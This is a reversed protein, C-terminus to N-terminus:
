FTTTSSTSSTAADTLSLAADTGASASASLASAADTFTTAADTLSSAAYTFNIGGVSYTGTKSGDSPLFAAFLDYTGSANTQGTVYLNGSTDVAIAYGQDIGAPSSINRQWQITGSTNYKAIQIDDNSTGIIYVNGSADVAIGNGVDANASFLRRQWQITGSSNYKALQIDSDALHSRSTGVVYVNGSSDVAIGNGIEGTAADGLVRQWTIVGATTLKMIQIDGNAGSANNYGTVYVNGSSDCAAANAQTAAGGGYTQQFQLTPTSNYKYVLLSRVGPANTYGVCFINGSADVAGGYGASNVGAFLLRRQFQLAGASNYKAVAPVQVTPSAQGFVYFNSSSDLAVAYCIDTSAGTLSRQWQIAGLLNYKAFQMNENPSSGVYGGVFLNGATDAAVGLGGEPSGSALTIMFNPPASVTLSISRGNIVFGGAGVSAPSYTVTGALQSVSGNTTSVTYTTFSDFNTITFTGSSGVYYTTQNELLDVPADIPNTVRQVIFSM